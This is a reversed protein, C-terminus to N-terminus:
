TRSSLKRKTGRGAILKGAAYLLTKIYFVGGINWPHEGGGRNIAGVTYSNTVARRSNLKWLYESLGAVTASPNFVIEAGNPGVGLGEPLPPRLLYLCRHRRVADQVRSGLNGPKFYFKGLLRPVIHIHHKAINVSINATPM